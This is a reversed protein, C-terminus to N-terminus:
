REREEVKISGATSGRHVLRARIACTLQRALEESLGIAVSANSSHQRSQRVYQPGDSRPEEDAEICDKTRRNFQRHIVAGITNPIWVCCVFIACWVILEAYHFASGILYDVLGSLDPRSLYWDFMPKRATLVFAAFTTCGFATAIGVKWQL